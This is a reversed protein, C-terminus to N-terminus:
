PCAPADRIIAPIKRIVHKQSAAVEQSKTGKVICARQSFCPWVQKHQDCRPKKQVSAESKNGREVM